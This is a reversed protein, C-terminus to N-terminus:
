SVFTLLAIACALSANRTDIFTAMKCLFLGIDDLSAISQIIRFKTILVSAHFERADIVLIADNVFM